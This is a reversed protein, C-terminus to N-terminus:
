PKRTLALSLAMWNGSASSTSVKTGTASTSNLELRDFRSIYTAATASHGAAFQGATMGTPVSLTATTGGTALAVIHSTYMETQSATPTISPATVVTGTGSGTVLTAGIPATVDVNRLFLRTSTNVVSTNFTINSTGSTPTLVRYAVLIKGVGVVGNLLTVWGQGTPVTITGASGITIFYLQVDDQTFTYGAPASTALATGTGSTLQPWSAAISISQAVSTRRRSSTSRARLTSVNCHRWQTAM